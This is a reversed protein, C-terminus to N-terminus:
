ASTNAPSLVIQDALTWGQRAARARSLMSPLSALGPGGSIPGHVDFGKFLELPNEGIHGSALEVYRIPVTARATMGRLIVPEHLAPEAAAVIKFARSCEEVDPAPFSGFQEGIVSLLGRSGRLHDLPDVVEEGPGSAEFLRTCVLATLGNDVAQQHLGILRSLRRSPNRRHKDGGHESGGVAAKTLQARFQELSLRGM